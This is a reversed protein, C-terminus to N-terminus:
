AEDASVVRYGFSQTGANTKFFVITFPASDNPQIEFRKVPGQKQLDDIEQQTLDHIIKPSIANGVTIIRHELVSGDRGYILGEIKVERVRVRNRNVATGSLLFVERNGQIRQFQAGVTQLVIGHRLYDNRVMSSGILPVTKLFSEIPEPRAKYLLTVSACALLMCGSLLFFPAISLPRNSDAAPAAADETKASRERTFVFAPESRPELRPETKEGRFTLNDDVGRQDLTWDRRTDDTVSVESAVDKAEFVHDEQSSPGNPPPSVDSPAPDAAEPAIKDGAPAAPAEFTFSLERPDRESESRKPPKSQGKGGLVFVNKCRSCRFTPKSTAVADESVRYTTHCGPCQVLM